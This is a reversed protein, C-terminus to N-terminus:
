KPQSLFVETRSGNQPEPVVRFTAWDNPKGHTPISRLGIAQKIELTLVVLIGGLKPM